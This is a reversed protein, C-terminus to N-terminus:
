TLMFGSLNIKRYICTIMGEEEFGGGSNRKRDEEFRSDVGHGGGEGIGKVRWCWCWYKNRQWWWM